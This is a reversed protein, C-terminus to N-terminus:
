LILNYTILSFLVGILSAVVNVTDNNIYSIGKVFKTDIKCHIKSETIKGCISCQYKAQLTAGLLSDVLNGLFSSLLIILFFKLNDYKSYSIASFFVVISGLIGGITGIVSVGGSEGPSIKKLSLVNYTNTKILTGIETSWTDACVTAISAVYLIYFVENSFISNAIVIIGAIGGNAMVQGWDRVGSKEYYLEAKSKNINKIKSLLSSLVFFTLIPITYKLGGLGFVNAALLFTAIGGDLTLFKLKVSILVVILSLIIGILYNELLFRNYILLYYYLAGYIPVILNDLGDNFILEILTLKLSLIFLFLNLYVINTSKYLDPFLLVASLYMIILTTSFFVLSGFFSKKYLKFNYKASKVYNGVIAAFADSFVLVSFSVTIINRNDRFFIILLFYSLTFYIIGKTVNFNKFKNKTNFKYLTILIILIIITVYLLLNIEKIFYPAYIGIIGATIHLIKRTSDPNFNYNSILFNVLYLLTSIITISFILFIFNNLM